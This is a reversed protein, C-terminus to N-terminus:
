LLRFSVEVQAQVAVPKGDKVGPSFQWQKVAEVAKEDLGLGLKRIVDVNTVRGSADVEVSLTATGQWKAKRAEESYAPEVKYLLRPSSPDPRTDNTVGAPGVGGFFAGRNGYYGTKFDLTVGPRDLVIRIRRYADGEDVNRPYYGFIYYSSLDRPALDPIKQFEFVSIAQAADDEFVRFDQPGLGEINQGNADTVVVNVLVLKTASFFTPVTTATAAQPALAVKATSSLRPAAVTRAETAARPAAVLKLPSLTLVLAAATGCAVVVSLVGARGRRQRGDLVAGVRAALDAHSAMALLPPKASKSLRQALGVLQDAYATAESRGLVADDCAREAELTLQRWAIWVLPHFWSVACVTRAVCHIAWDRRRVHELEHVIARHLDEQEWNRADPPLVIAPRVLGCTMPGPLEEHLVAEVRRGIGAQRAMADIATQGEPWAVGSRRLSRVQRLGMAMPLAFLAIGAIWVAFLLASMSFRASVSSVPAVGADARPVMAAEGADATSTRPANSVPAAIRVAVRVPPSVLSVAPLAVLAGFTATLLAHRVAARSRRALRAALLGVALMVTEKVLTSGVLSASVALMAEKIESTM